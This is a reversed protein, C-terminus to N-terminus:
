GRSRASMFLTGLVLGGVVIGKVSPSSAKGTACRTVTHECNNFFFRYPKPNWLVKAANLLTQERRETSQCRVSVERGDAFEAMSSAHEGETPTNHLVSGDWLVVGMHVGFRKDRTVIDGPMAAVNM